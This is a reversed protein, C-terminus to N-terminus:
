DKFSDDSYVYCQLYIKVYPNTVGVGLSMNEFFCDINLQTVNEFLAYVSDIEYDSPLRDVTGNNAVNFIKNGGNVLLRLYSSTAGAYSDFIRNIRVDELIEETTGDSFNLDMSDDSYYPVIKLGKLLINKNRFVGDDFAKTLVAGNAQGFFGLVNFRSKLIIRDLSNRELSNIKKELSQIKDLM